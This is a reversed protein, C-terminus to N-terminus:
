LDRPLAPTFTGAGVHVRDNCERQLLADKQRDQQRQDEDTAERKERLEVDLRIGVGNGRENVDDRLARALGGLLDLAVDGDRDLDLHGSNRVDTSDARDRQETKRVYLDLEGVVEGVVLRLLPHDVPKRLEGGQGVCGHRLDRRGAGNALDVAVPHDTRLAIRGQIQLGELIPYELAAELCYGPDDIDCTPAALGPAVLDTDVLVAQQLIAQRESLDKLSEVVAVHIDATLGDVDARLGRHHAADAEDVGHIVNTFRYHGGDAPDRDRDTVERRHSDSM